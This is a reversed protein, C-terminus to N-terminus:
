NLPIMCCFKIEYSLFHLGPLNVQQVRSNDQEEVKEIYCEQVQGM